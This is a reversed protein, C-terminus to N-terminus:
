SWSVVATRSASLLLESCVRSCALSRLAHRTSRRRSVRTKGIVPMFNTDGEWRPVVHLRLHDALGAGAVTGINPEPNFEDAGM